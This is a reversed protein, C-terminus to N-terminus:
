NLQLIITKEPKLQAAMRLDVLLHKHGHVELVGEVHRQVVGPQNHLARREQVVPLKLVPLGPM